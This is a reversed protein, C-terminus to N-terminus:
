DLFKLTELMKNFTGIHNPDGPFQRYLIQVTEGGEIDFLYYVMKMGEPQEFAKNSATYSVKTGAKQDIVIAEKRYDSFWGSDNNDDWIEVLEASSYRDHKGIVITPLFDSQCHLEKPRSSLREKTMLSITNKGSCRTVEWDLSHKISVGIQLNEVLKWGATEDKEASPTAQTASPSAQKTTAVPTSETPERVYFYWFLGEGIFVLVLSITVGTLIVKLWSIKKSSTAEEPM